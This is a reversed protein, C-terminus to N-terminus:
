LERVEITGSLRGELYSHDNVTKSAVCIRSYLKDVLNAYIPWNTNDFNDLAAQFIRAGLSMVSFMIASGRLRLMIGERVEPPPM